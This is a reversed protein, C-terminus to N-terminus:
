IFTFKHKCLFDITMAAKSMIAWFQLCELYGECSILSHYIWVLSHWEAIFPVFEQYVRCNPSIDPPYTSIGLSQM